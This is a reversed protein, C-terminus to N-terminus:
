PKARVQSVTSIVRSMVSSCIAAASNRYASCGGRGHVAAVPGFWRRVQQNLLPTGDSM